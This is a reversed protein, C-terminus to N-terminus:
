SKKKMFRVTLLMAKMNQGGSKFTNSWFNNYNDKFPTNNSTFFLGLSAGNMWTCYSYGNVNFEEVPSDSYLTVLEKASHIDDSLLEFSDPEPCMGLSYADFDKFISQSPLNILTKPIEVLGSFGTMGITIGLDSLESSSLSTFVLHKEFVDYTVMESIKVNDSEYYIADGKTKKTFVPMQAGGSPQAKTWAGDVVSLVKGNDSTSASPLTQFAVDGVSIDKTTPNFYVTGADPTAPTQGSQLYVFKVEDNTNM